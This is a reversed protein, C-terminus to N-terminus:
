ETSKFKQLHVFDINLTKFILNIKKHFFTSNGKKEVITFIGQCIENLQKEVCTQMLRNKGM